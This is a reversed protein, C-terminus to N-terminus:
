QNITVRDLAEVFGALTTMVGEPHRPSRALLIKDNARNSVACIMAPDSRPFSVTGCKECTRAHGASGLTCPGGCISCFGSRRKWTVLATAALAVQNESFSLFPGHVRTDRFRADDTELTADVAFLPAGGLQASLGAAKYLM